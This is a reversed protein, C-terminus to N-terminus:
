GHIEKWRKLLFGRHDLATQMARRVEARKM